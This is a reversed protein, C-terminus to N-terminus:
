GLKEQRDSGVAGHRGVIAMDIEPRPNARRQGLDDGFFEVNGELADGHHQAVGAEDGVLAGGNRAFGDLHRRDRQALRGCLRAGDQHGFGGTEPADVWAGEHDLVADNARAPDVVPLDVVPLDGVAVDDALSPDTEAKVFPDDDLSRGVVPDDASGHRPDIDRGLRRALEDIHM